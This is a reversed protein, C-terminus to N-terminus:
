TEDKVGRGVKTAFCERVIDAAMDQRYFRLGEVAEPGHDDIFGSMELNLLIVDVAKLARQMQASHSDWSKKTSKMAYRDAQHKKSM